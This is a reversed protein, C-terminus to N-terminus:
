VLSFLVNLEFKRILLFKILYLLLHVHICKYSLVVVVVNLKQYRETEHRRRHYNIKM